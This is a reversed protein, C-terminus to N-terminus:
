LADGEGRKRWEDSLESLHWMRQVDRNKRIRRSRVSQQGKWTVRYHGGPLERIMRQIVLFELAADLQEAIGHGMAELLRAYPVPQAVNILNLLLSTRRYDIPTPM